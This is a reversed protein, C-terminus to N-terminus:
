PLIETSQAAVLGIILTYLLSQNLVKGLHLLHYKLYILGAPFIVSEMIVVHVQLSVNVGQLSLDDSKLVFTIFAGTEERNLCRLQVFQPLLPIRYGCLNFGPLM